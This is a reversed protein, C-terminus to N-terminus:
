DQHPVLHVAAPFLQEGAHRKRRVEYPLDSDVYRDDDGDPDKSFLPNVLSQHPVVDISGLIVLYDPMLARYAADIADNSAKRVDPDLVAKGRVARMQSRSSLDILRTVLGRAADAAIMADVAASIEALSRTGYKSRLAQVNTVILKDIKAWARGWTGDFTSLWIRNSGRM